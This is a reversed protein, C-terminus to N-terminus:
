IWRRLHDSYIGSAGQAYNHHVCSISTTHVSSRSILHGLLHSCTTESSYQLINM